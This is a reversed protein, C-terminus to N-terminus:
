SRNLKSEADFFIFQSLFCFRQLLTLSFLSLCVWDTTLSDMERMTKQSEELRNSKFEGIGGNLQLYM